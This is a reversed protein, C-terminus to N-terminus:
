ILSQSGVSHPAKMAKLNHFALAEFNTKRETIPNWKLQAFAENGLLLISPPWIQNIEEHKNQIHFIKQYYKYM